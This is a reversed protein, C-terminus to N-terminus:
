NISTPDDFMNGIAIKNESLPLIKSHYISIWERFHYMTQKYGKIQAGSKFKIVKEFSTIHDDYLVMVNALSEVLKHATEKTLEDESSFTNEIFEFDELKNTILLKWNKTIFPTCSSLSSDNVSSSTEKFNEPTITSSSSDSSSESWSEQAKNNLNELSPSTLVGKGKDITSTVESSSPKSLNTLEIDKNEPDEKFFRRWGKQISETSTQTTSSINSNPNIEEPDRPTRSFYNKIWEISSFYGDKIEDFYYYSLGSIIVVGTIIAISKSNNQIIDWISDENHNEIKKSKNNRNIWESISNDGKENESTKNTIGKSFQFESEKVPNISEKSSFLESYWKYINTEKFWSIVDLSYIDILSIGLIGSAIWRFIHWFKHVLSYKRIWRVIFGILTIKLILSKFHLIYEVIKILTSQNQNSNQNNLRKFKGILEAKTYKNLNNM